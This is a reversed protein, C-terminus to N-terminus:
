KKSKVWQELLIPNFKLKSEGQKGHKCDRRYVENIVVSKPTFTRSFIGKEDLSVVVKQVFIEQTMITMAQKQPFTSASTNNRGAFTGKTDVYSIMKNNVTMAYFPIFNQAHSKRYPYFNIKYVGGTNWYFIGHAKKDWVFAFDATYKQPSVLKIDVPKNYNKQEVFAHTYGGEYVQFSEPQYVAEKLYGADLLENIYAMFWREEQSTKDDEFLRGQETSM